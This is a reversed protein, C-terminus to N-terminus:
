PSLPLTEWDRDAFDPNGEWVPSFYNGTHVKHGTAKYIAKAQATAMIDDGMGM